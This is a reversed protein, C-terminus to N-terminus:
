TVSNGDNIQEMMYQLKLTQKQARTKRMWKRSYTKVKEPNLSRWRRSAFYNKERQERGQKSRWRAHAARMRLRHACLNKERYRKTIAASKDPNKQRWKRQYNIVRERNKKTWERLRERTREKRCEGSCAKATRRAEFAVGCIVCAKIM